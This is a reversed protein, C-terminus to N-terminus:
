HCGLLKVVYWRNKLHFLEHHISAGWRSYLCIPFPEAERIPLSFEEDEAVSKHLKQPRIKFSMHFIGLIYLYICIYIYVYIYAVQYDNFM